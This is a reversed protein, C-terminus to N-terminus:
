NHHWWIGWRFLHLRSKNRWTSWAGNKNVETTEEIINAIIRFSTIICPLSNSGGQVVLIIVYLCLFEAPNQLKCMYKFICVLDKVDQPQLIVFNIASVLSFTM